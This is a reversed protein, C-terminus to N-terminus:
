DLPWRPKHGNSGGDSRSTFANAYFIDSKRLRSWVVRGLWRRFYPIFLSFGFADTILGPTLLLAGAFLLFVGDVVSVIPLEGNHLSRQAQELVSIGQLRLLITGLVATLVVLVVTFLIGVAKGVNILVVIEALPVVIFAALIILPM